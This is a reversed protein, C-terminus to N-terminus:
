GTYRYFIYTIYDNNNMRTSINKNNIYYFKDLYKNIRIKYSYILINIFVMVMMFISQDFM